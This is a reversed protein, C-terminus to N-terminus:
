HKGNIAIRIVKAQAKATKPLTVTLVGNKFSADVKDEEIEGILLMSVLPAWLAPAGQVDGIGLLRLRRCRNLHRARPTLLHVINM